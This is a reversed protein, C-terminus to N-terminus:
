ARHPPGGEDAQDGTRTDIFRVMNGLAKVQGRRLMAATYGISVFALFEWPPELGLVTEFDQKAEWLPGVWSAGLGLAAAALLMNQIACAASAIGICDETRRPYEGMSTPKFAVAVV